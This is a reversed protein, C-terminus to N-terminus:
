LQNVINEYQRTRELVKATKNEVAKYKEILLLFSKKMEEKNGYFFSLHRNLNM